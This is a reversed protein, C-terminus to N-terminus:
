CYTNFSREHREHSPKIPSIFKRIISMKISKLLTKLKKINRTSNIGLYRIKNKINNNFHSKERANYRIFNCM